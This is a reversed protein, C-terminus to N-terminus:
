LEESLQDILHHVLPVSVAISCRVAPRTGAVNIVATSGSVGAFGRSTVAEPIQARCGAARMTEAIGPVVRDSVLETADPAVDRPGVGTGGVTVVLDVGGVVATEIAERIRSQESPVQVSGAVLFNAETLLEAVLNELGPDRREPHDEIMVVLARRRAPSEGERERAILYGADPESVDLLDSHQQPSQQM